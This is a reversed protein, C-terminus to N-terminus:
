CLCALEDVEVSSDRPESTRPKFPRARNYLGVLCKAHYKAEIAILDGVSLKATLKSDNLLVACDRVKKDVELTSASHLNVPKDFKECFICQSQPNYSGSSSRRAKVPSFPGEGIIGDTTESEGDEEQDPDAM